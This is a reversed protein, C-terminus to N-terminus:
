LVDSTSLYRYMEVRLFHSHETLPTNLIHRLFITKYLIVHKYIICYVVKKIRLDM